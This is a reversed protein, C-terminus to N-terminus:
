AAVSTPELRGLWAVLALVGVALTTELLLSRRLASKADLSSARAELAAGLAPTLRFRNSAAFGLMGVFLLLKLSLLQGYPTTWLGSLHAPGVLFWSNVLGTAILVAVLLSGLRSFGRLAVHLAADTASNGNPSLTLGYFAILAGMWIGAALAHLIDAGLHFWGSSGRTAAGHGMWAFSSLAVAGLVVCLTFVGRISRVTAAGLLALAAVGARILSFPGLAMSTLVASLAEFTLGEAVSGALVSTQALLGLLSAVLVLAASSVLLQRSWPLRGATTAGQAPLAYLFFAASGFLAAAGAYQALRLLIVAPELVIM